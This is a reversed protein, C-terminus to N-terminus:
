KPKAAIRIWITTTSWGDDDRASFQLPMNEGTVYGPDGPKFDLYSSDGIFVGNLTWEYQVLGPDDDAGLYASGQLPITTGEMFSAGDSPSDIVVVPPANPAQDVVAITISATGTAGEADTYSATITRTGAQKFTIRPECGTTPFPADKFYDSTWVLDGCLSAEPANLQDEVQGVFKYTAGTTLTQGDYPSVIHVRPVRNTANVVISTSGTAGLRDTATATIRRTGTTPFVYDLNYGDGMAGDVDSAWHVDVANAGQEIDLSEATFHVANVSGYDVNDNDHPATIRVSPPVNGGFGRLVGYRADVPSTVSPDSSPLTVAGNSLIGEVQDATQTPDAALILAAVGAAYPASFSTGQETAIKVDAPNTNDGPQVGTYVTFPAYLDVDCIGESRRELCYYSNPDRDRSGSKLGGVCMVGDYECPAVVAEEVCVFYCTEHDVDQSPKGGTSTRDNGAAAFVIVGRDRARKVATELAGTFIGVIAPDDGGFSMNIIRAGSSVAGNVEMASKDTTMDTPWMSISAVPGGTGATGVGNDPVGGATNAVNTCHWKDGGAVAPLGNGGGTGPPFDPNSGACGADIIGIGIKNGLRNGVALMRWAESVGYNEPGGAKMYSWAASNSSYPGGAPDAVGNKADTTARSVFDLPRFLTNLAVDHGAAKETAAAAFLKLANTNTFGHTGHATPDLGMVTSKLASVDASSADVRVLYTPALSADPPTITETVRGRWRAVVGALESASKTTVLLENAVYDTTDGMSDTLRAVPRTTDGGVFTVDPKVSADTNFVVPPAPSRVEVGTLNGRDDLSALFRLQFSQPKAPSPPHLTFTPTFSATRAAPGPPITATDKSEGNATYRGGSTRGLGDVDELNSKLTLTWGAAASGKSEIKAKLRGALGVPENTLANYVTAKLAFKDNGEARAAPMHALLPLAVIVAAVAFALPHRAPRARTM